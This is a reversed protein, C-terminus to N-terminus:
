NSLVTIFSIVPVSCADFDLTMRFSAFIDVVISPCTPKKIFTIHILSFLEHDVFIDKLPGLRSRTVCIHFVIM